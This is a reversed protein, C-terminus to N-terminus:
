NSPPPTTDSPDTVIPPTSSTPAPAIASVPPTVVPTTTTVPATPTSIVTCKAQLVIVYRSGDSTNVLTLKEGLKVTAAAQGTDYSGGVIAVKVSKGDKAIEVVRFIDENGPFTGNVAVQECVGNTSILVSGASPQDPTTTVPPPAAPGTTPPIVPAPEPTTATTTTAPETLVSPGPQATPAPTTVTGGPVKATKKPAPASAKPAAPPTPAASTTVLQQVFPDKSKFLGFSLLQSSDRQLAIGDTDRLM